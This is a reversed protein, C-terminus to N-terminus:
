PRDGGGPHPFACPQDNFECRHLCAPAALDGERGRQVAAEHSLRRGEATGAEEGPTVLVHVLTGRVGAEVSAQALVRRVGEAAEAGRAERAAAALGVYAAQGEIDGEQHPLIEELEERVEEQARVVLGHDLPARLPSAPM